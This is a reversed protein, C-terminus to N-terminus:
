KHAVVLLRESSKKPPEMDLADYIEIGKFGSKELMKHIDSANYAYEDFSEQSRRYLKGQKEFFDLDIRVRNDKAHFSNQWVCFVHDTEYVYTHDSLVYKHKYVTNMDFVFFGEPNLFMWVRDFAKQVEAGGKLHNLSDLMCFVTDSCGYLDLDQMNQCLFLVDMEREYAKDKAQSLMEMSADVGYVDVGRELLEFTLNGTGCALDLTLGPEHGYQALVSLLRDAMKSYDVNHILEDYYFAFQSYESM